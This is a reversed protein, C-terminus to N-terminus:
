KEFFVELGKFCDASLKHGVNSECFTVDAGAQDFLRVAERAKEVPVIVDNLGHSVYVKMGKLSQGKIFNETDLPLFGALGAVAQVREPNLLMFAYAFAAGQSFGALRFRTFDGQPAALPWNDMLELLEYTTPTLSDLSPWGQERMPYWSYGGNTAPFRGRPALILYEEPLQSAFVWMSEEDGKWGHLLWIVPHHGDGEPERYRIVWDHFKLTELRSKM